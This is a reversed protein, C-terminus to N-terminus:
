RIIRIRQDEGGIARSTSRSIGQAIGQVVSIVLTQAVFQFTGAVAYAAHEGLKKFYTGADTTSGDDGLSFWATVAAISLAAGTIALASYSVLAFTSTTNAASAALIASVATLVALSTTTIFASKNANFFPTTQAAGEDSAAIAIRCM